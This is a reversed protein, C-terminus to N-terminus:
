PLAPGVHLLAACVALGALAVLCPGRLLPLWVLRLRAAWGAGLGAATRTLGQTRGRLARVPWVLAAPVILLTQAACATLPALGPWLTPLHWALAVGPLATLLLLAHIGDLARGARLCVCVAALMLGFAAGTQGAMTALATGTM